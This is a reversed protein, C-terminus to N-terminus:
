FNYDVSFSMLLVTCFLIRSKQPTSSEESYMGESRLRLIRQSKRPRLAALRM